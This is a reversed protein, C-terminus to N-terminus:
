AAQKFMVVLAHTDPEFQEVGLALAEGRGLLEEHRNREALASRACRGPRMLGLRREVRKSLQVRAHSMGGLGACAHGHRAFRLADAELGADRSQLMPYPRAPM